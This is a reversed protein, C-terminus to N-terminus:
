EKIFKGNSLNNGSSKVSYTYLGKPLESINILTENEFKKTLILKASMDFVSILYIVGVKGSIKIFDKSPNPSLIIQNTLILNENNLSNCQICNKQFTISNDVVIQNDFLNGQDCNGKLQYELWPLIYSNIINQQVIRTITPQPSCSSEGIGCFLNSNAMQCHSGGIINILTKCSSVLDDYMLIQNSIPPTVCDNVGAFILSPITVSAAAQVASPTTEAAAFNVLTKINPNLQAALFSAGGGMSHGMVANMVSIRNYFLSSSNNGLVTMQDLVFSLDKGFDLHSPSFTGETKPFIMIYGNPVLFNWYNQYADWTMLFGHGFSLVPFTASTSTTMAVNDGTVDSPYYIETAIVRNGRSSDTFNITTHGIQFPQSFSFHIVFLLLITIIFKTTKM